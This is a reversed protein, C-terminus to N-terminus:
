RVSGTQADVTVYFVLGKKSLLKVKYGPHGNVRKSQAKLVKGQYQRKVLQVAQERSKVKLKNSSKKSSQGAIHMSREAGTSRQTSSATVTLPFLLYVILTLLSALKM